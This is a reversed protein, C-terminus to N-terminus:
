SFLFSVNDKLQVRANQLMHLAVKQDKQLQSKLQDLSSFRMEDRIRQYFHLTIPHDYIDKSFNFIHSEITVKGMDLTPRIGINIMTKYWTNRHNVWGAYVGLPPILKGPQCTQLNATPFGIKRGVQNGYVVKGSLPYHYGLKKQWEFVSTNSFAHALFDKIANSGISKGDFGCMYFPGQYFGSECKQSSRLQALVGPWDKIEVSVYHKVGCQKLMNRRENPCLLIQTAEDAPTIDMYLINGNVFSKIEKLLDLCQKKLQFFTGAVLYNFNDKHVEQFNNYIHM